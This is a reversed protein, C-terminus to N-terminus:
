IQIRWNDLKEFEDDISEEQYDGDYQIDSGEVQFDILQAFRVGKELFFPSHSHNICMFQLHGCYGSDGVATYVVIGARLLTSRPKYLQASNKGICIKRDVELVYVKNPLLNWGQINCCDLFKPKIEIQSPLEKEKVYGTIENNYLGYGIFCDSHQEIVDNLEYVKGLRLDIGNPTRDDEDFDIYIEKLLSYGNIM